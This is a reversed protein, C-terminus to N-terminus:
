NEAKAVYGKRMAERLTLCQRYSTAKRGQAYAQAEADRDLSRKTAECLNQNKQSWNEMFYAALTIDGVTPWIEILIWTDPNVEPYRLPGYKLEQAITGFPLASLAAM